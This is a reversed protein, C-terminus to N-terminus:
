VGQCGRQQKRVFLPRCATSFSVGRWNAQAVDPLLVKGAWVAAAVVGSFASPPHWDQTLVVLDWDNGKRVSNIVPIVDNGEPVALAGGECFDNQLWGALWGHCAWVVGRVHAARLSRWQPAVVTVEWM